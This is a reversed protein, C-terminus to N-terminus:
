IKEKRVKYPLKAEVVIVDNVGVGLYEVKSLDFDSAKVSFRADIESGSVKYTMTVPKRVGSFELVGTAKGDQGKVNTLIAEPHKDSKLHKWTHEDRLEIGTKFSEISVSIKDATFVEGQKIIDGKAKNSVAQFSGAPSLTVYLTVKGSAFSVFSFLLIGAAIIAKM